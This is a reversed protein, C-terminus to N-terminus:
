LEAEYEDHPWLEAALAALHQEQRRPLSRIFSEPHDRAMGRAARAEAEAAAQRRRRTMDLRRWLRALCRM